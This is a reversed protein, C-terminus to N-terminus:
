HILYAILYLRDLYDYIYMFLEVQAVYEMMKLNMNKLYFFYKDQNHIM